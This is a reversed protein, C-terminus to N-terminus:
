YRSLAVGSGSKCDVAFILKLVIARICFSPKSEYTMDKGDDAPLTPVIDEIEPALHFPNSFTPNGNPANQSSTQICCIPICVQALKSNDLSLFNNHIVLHYFNFIHTYRKTWPFIPCTNSRKLM